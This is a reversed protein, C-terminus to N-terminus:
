YQNKLESILAVRALQEISAVHEFCRQFPGLKHIRDVAAFCDLRQVACSTLQSVVFAFYRFAPLQNFCSFSQFQRRDFRYREYEFHLQCHLQGAISRAEAAM